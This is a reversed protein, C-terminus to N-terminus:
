QATVVLNVPESESTANPEYFPYTKAAPATVEMVQRPKMPLEMVLPGQDQPLEHLYVLVIDGKVEYRAVRLDTAVQAGLGTLDVDFGPPVPFEVMPMDNPSLTGTATITVTATTSDGITMVTPTYAVNIDVTPGERRSGPLWPTYHQSTLQWLLKGEGAITIEVPVDGGGAVKQTLSVFHVVDKNDQNVTKQFVQQGGATVTVTADTTGSGFKAAAVFGRLAQITGQTSMFNGDPRKQESLWNLAGEVMTPPTEMQYLAQAAIATTEVKIIDGQAHTVGPDVSDWFARGATETNARSLLEAVAADTAPDSPQLALLANACMALTYTDAETIEQSKIFGFASGLKDVASSDSVGLGWAVVCTTRLDDWPVVENKTHQTTDWSGNSNQTGELFSQARQVLGEDVTTLGDFDAFMQLAFATLIPHAPSPDGFWTFGGGSCEFTVSQQLGDDLNAKAKALLDADTSGTVQLYNLVLGNIWTSNMMPEFCGRPVQLLADMGDVMQASPSGMIKLLADNGGDLASAPISVTRTLSADLPGSQSLEHRQGNPTIATTRIVGDAMSPGVANIELSQLGAETVEIGTPLAISEGAPVTVTQEAQGLMTFWPASAVTLTITQEVESFNYVGIPLHLRDGVTLNKPLDVDVFFDQFVQLNGTGAGLLGEASNAIMSIRWSTINDALPVKITAEGNGDTIISPNVYLTEKFDDRPAKPGPESPPSPGSDASTDAGWGGSDSSSAADAGGGAFGNSPDMVGDRDSDEGVYGLFINVSWDDWDGLIESAGTSRMIINFEFGNGWYAERLSSEFVFAQGWPDVMFLREVIQAANHKTIAGQNMLKQLQTRVSASRSALLADQVNEAQSRLFSLSNGNLTASPTTHAGALAAAASVQVSEPSSNLAFPRLADPVDDLMFHALVETPSVAGALAFVAEDAIAVGLAAAKGQGAADSVKFTLTAESGPLYSVADAEVTVNATPARVFASQQGSILGGDSDVWYATFHQTGSEDGLPTFMTTAKGNAIAVAITDVIRGRHVRDIFVEGDREPATVTVAMSEGPAYLAKDTQVMVQAYNTEPTSIVRNGVLGGAECTVDVTTTFRGGTISVEGVGLNGTDFTVDPADKFYCTANTAAGTPGRTLVYLKWDSGEPVSSSEALLSVSVAPQAVLVSSQKNVAFGATDTTEVQITTAGHSMAPLTFPMVGSPDTTGSFTATGAALAVTAGKVPQGFFYKARVTGTVEVGPAFYPEDLVVAVDFAPLKEESVEVHREVVLDGRTVRITYTGLNVQKALPARLSAIGFANTTTEERFVKTSKGDLVEFIVPESAVPARDKATLLLARLEMLQGPRYLPKDSSVFVKPAGAPVVQLVKSITIPPVGDVSATVDMTLTPDTIEGIPLNLVVQGTLDTMVPAAGNASVFVGEAPEGTTLNTVWARAATTSGADVREPAWVLMGFKPMAHFVSRVGSAEVDGIRVAYAILWRMQDAQDAPLTAGPVDIEVAQQGPALSVTQSAAQFAESTDSEGIGITIKADVASARVLQVPLSVRIGGDVVRATIGQEDVVADLSEPKDLPTTPTYDIVIQDDQVSPGVEHCAASAFMLTLTAAFALYRM